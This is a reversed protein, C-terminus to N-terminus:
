TNVSDLINKSFESDLSVPRKYFKRFTCDRSWGATRLITQIPIKGFVASTSASRTSHASFINTDIGALILTKKIWKSLTTETVVAHPKQVSIFLKNGTFASRLKSTFDLYYKLTFVVCLSDSIYNEIYLESLHNGHRTQKLLDQIRIKIATSSIEINDLTICHLTQMRQGTCLALLMLLKYSLLRLSLDELPFLSQLYSLVAKVDWTCNYRPLSPRKNSIGKMFQKILIHNGLQVNSVIYVASSVVSKATNITSYGLKNSFLQTLFKLLENVWCVGSTSV